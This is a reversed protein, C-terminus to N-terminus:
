DTSISIIGLEHARKQLKPDQKVKSVLRIVSGPHGMALHKAIWDFGVTTRACLIAALLAKREDSKRPQALDAAAEPLELAPGCTEIIREADRQGHDREAGESKPNGSRSRVPPSSHAPPPSSDIAVQFAAAPM